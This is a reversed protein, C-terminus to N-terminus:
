EAQWLLLAHSRLLWGCNWVGGGGSKSPPVVTYGLLHLFVAYRLRSDNQLVEMEVFLCCQLHILKLLFLVYCTLNKNRNFNPHPLNYTIFSSSLRSTKRAALESFANRNKFNLLNTFTYFYFVFSLQQHIWTLGITYLEVRSLRWWSGKKLIGYCNVKCERQVGQATQNCAKNM